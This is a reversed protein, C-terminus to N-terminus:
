MGALLMRLKANTVDASRHEAFDARARAGPGLSKRLM